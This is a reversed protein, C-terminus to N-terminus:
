RGANYKQKSTANMETNQFAGCVWRGDRRVMAFTQLKDYLIDSGKGLGGVTLVSAFDKGLPRVSPRSSWRLVQLFKAFAAEHFSEIERRGVVAQGFFTVYTANEDFEAAFAQADAASAAARMRELCHEITDPKSDTMKDNTMEAAYAAIPLSVDAATFLLSSSLPMRM